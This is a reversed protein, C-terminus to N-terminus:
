IDAAKEVGIGRSDHSETPVNSVRGALFPHDKRSNAESTQEPLFSSTLAPPLTLM